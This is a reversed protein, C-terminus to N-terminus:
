KVHHYQPQEQPEVDVTGPASEAPSDICIAENSYSLRFWTLTDEDKIQSYLAKAIGLFLACGTFVLVMGDGTGAGSTTIMWAVAALVAVTFLVKMITRTNSM